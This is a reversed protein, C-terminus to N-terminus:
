WATLIDELFRMQYMRKVVELRTDENGALKAQHLLPAASRTGGMGCAYFRVNEEGCWIVLCNNDALTTIAAHTIRIGPGLMLVALSSAPVHTMGEENYFAISKEHQDIRGHELYLYSLSDRFKPLIHLDDIRM